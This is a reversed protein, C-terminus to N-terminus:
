LLGTNSFLNLLQKHAVKPFEAKHDTKFM